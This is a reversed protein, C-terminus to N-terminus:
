PQTSGPSRGAALTRLVEAKLAGFEASATTELGRPRPLDVEIRALIRGPRHSMVFVVDSLMLAEEVDHTVLLATRQDETWVEQLWEQMDRRTLADLAGFPEDLLLVRRPALFTRLLALRQRMGGSLQAPWAREFGELGFRGLLTRAQERAQARPIGSLEAGLAANGLTRRWPLLLDRQPKFAALGPRERADQGDVRVEVGPGAEPPALGALVRLLTSKGCGSPGVLSAFQGQQVTLDVDALAHVPTEGGYTLSVGRVLIAEPTADGPPGPPAEPARAPRADTATM